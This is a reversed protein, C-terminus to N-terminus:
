DRTETRVWQVYDALSQEADVELVVIEPLEYPHLERLREVLHAVGPESVKILMAVEPDVQIAGDWRYVSRIPMLNVCAAAREEVLARAVRDADDPGINSLVIRM